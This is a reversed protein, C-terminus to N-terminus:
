VSMSMRTLGHTCKQLLDPDSLDDFIPKIEKVICDPIGNKHKYSKKERKYGCWGEEGDPCLHHQPNDDTSAVHYLATQIREAMKSVDNTNERVALGYYNQLVDIKGDTLRGKGDLGKGDSLKVAKKTTKLKRLRSGVQKQIHGICELKRPICDEGYPKNEVVSNYTSSDGDGLMDTYQLGRTASSRNFIRVAGVAEMGNAGGVHNIKCQHNAKWEEYKPDNTKKNEKDAIINGNCRWQSICPRTKALYWGPFHWM